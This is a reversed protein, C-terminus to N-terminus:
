FPNNSSSDSGGLQLKLAQWANEVKRRLEDIRQRLPQQASGEPIRGPDLEALRARYAADIDAETAEMGVGLVQRPQTLPKLRMYLSWIDEHARAEEQSRPGTSVADDAIAFDVTIEGLFSDTLNVDQVRPHDELTILRADRLVVVVLTGMLPDLGAEALVEGVTRRGDILDTARHGRLFPRVKEAAAGLGPAPVAYLSVIDGQLAMLAPPALQRRRSDLILGFPNVKLLPATDLFSRDEIFRYEGATQTAVAIVQDRVVERMFAHMREGDLVGAQLLSGLLAGEAVPAVTHDPRLFGKQVLKRYLGADGAPDSAWVPEGRHLYLTGRADDADVALRGTLEQAFLSTLLAAGAGREVDEFHGDVVVIADTAPASQTSSSPRLADVQTPEPVEDGGDMRQRSTPEEDTAPPGSIQPLTAPRRLSPPRLTPVTNVAIRPVAAVAAAAAALPSEDFAADLEAGPTDFPNYAPGDVSSDIRVELGPRTPEQENIALVRTLIRTVIRENNTEGGVVDVSLELAALLDDPSTDERPLIFILIEPHRKRALQCLGRLSLRRRGEAAVVFSFDARGFAAMAAFGDAVDLCREGRSAFAQALARRRADDEDVILVTKQLVTSVEGADRGSGGSPRRTVIGRRRHRRCGAGKGPRCRETM